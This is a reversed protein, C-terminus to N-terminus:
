PPSLLRPSIYLLFILLPSLLVSQKSLVLAVFLRQLIAWSPDAHTHQLIHLICCIHTGKNWANLVDVLIGSRIAKNSNAMAWSGSETRKLVKQQDRQERWYLLDLTIWALIPCVVSDKACDCWVWNWTKVERTLSTLMAGCCVPLLPPQINPCLM